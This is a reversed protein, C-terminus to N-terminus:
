AREAAVATLPLPVADKKGEPKEAPPVADKKGETQRTTPALKGGAPGLTGGEVHLPGAGRSTAGKGGVPLNAARGSAVGTAGASAARRTSTFGDCGFGADPCAQKGAHAADAKATTPASVSKFGFAQAAATLSINKM